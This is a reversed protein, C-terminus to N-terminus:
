TQVAFDCPHIGHNVWVIAAEASSMEPPVRLIHTHATSPCTMKLLLMPETDIPDTDGDYVKDFGDIKLLTYERWTDIAVANLEDCIKEYGVRDILIRRIETNDEDLLWEPKWDSLKTWYRRPLTRVNFCSINRLNPMNQLSSLDQWPNNDLYLYDLKFLYEISKPLSTLQNNQLNLTDLMSLNGINEPLATLQNNALFLNILYPFNSINEPLSSLRNKSLDLETLRYLKNIWQPLSTLQNNRINLIDLSSLSVINVPLNVLQNNELNLWTLSSLNGISKPLSTLQNRALNLWNLSSLNGISKPLGTLQNNELDLETLCNIRGVSESLTTLERDALYLKFIKKNDTVDLPILDPAFLTLEDLIVEYTMQKALANIIQYNHENLLWEAKWNDRHTWYRHPLNAGFYYVRKLNPICHLNSLDIWPNDNIYLETLKALSGINDPLSTLKNQNLYLRTLSALHAIYEPLIIFQNYSLALSVLNTLKSISTPLSTLQNNGLSLEVLKSLSGISEPLITLNNGYLNLSTLDVLNGISDPIITLELSQLDLETVRDRRAVEIIQALEAQEM